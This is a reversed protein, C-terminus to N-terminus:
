TSPAQQICHEYFERIYECVSYEKFLDIVEKGTMGKENKYEEICFVIFPLEKTM